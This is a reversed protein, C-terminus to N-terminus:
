GAMSFHSSKSRALSGQSIRSRESSAAYATVSFRRLFCKLITWCSIRSGRVFFSVPESSSPYYRGKIQSINQSKQAKRRVANANPQSLRLAILRLLQLWNSPRVFQEPNGSTRSHRIECGGRKSADNGSARSDLLVFAYTLRVPSSCVTAYEFISALFISFFVVGTVIRMLLSRRWLDRNRRNFFAPPVAVPILAYQNQCQM